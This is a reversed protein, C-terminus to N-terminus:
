GIGQQLQEVWNRTRWNGYASIRVHRPEDGEGASEGSRTLEIEFRDEPLRDGLRQPWEILAVGEDLAEFLGLEYAEDPDTLRYLDFHYLEFDRTPYTQVLTFTPSPVDEDPRTLKRILARAFTSKGAGLEGRLLIADGVRLCIALAHALAETKAQGSLELELNEAVTTMSSAKEM